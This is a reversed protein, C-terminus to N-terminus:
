WPDTPPRRGPSISSGRMQDSIRRCCVVSCGSNENRGRLNLIAIVADSCSRAAILTWSMPRRRSLFGVALVTELHQDAAAEAARREDGLGDLREHMAAVDEAIDLRDQADVVLVAAAVVDVLRADLDQHMLEADLLEGLSTSSSHFCITVAGQREVM